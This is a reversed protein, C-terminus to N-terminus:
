EAGAAAPLGAEVWRVIIEIEEPPLAKSLFPMRPTSEGRLRRILESGAADRALVVAGGEGGALVAAYSDLRLGKAAGHEAHCNVCRREFIRSVEEWGPAPLSEGFAAPASVLWFAGGWIIGRGAM